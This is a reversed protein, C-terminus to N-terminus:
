SLSSKFAIVPPCSSSSPLTGTKWVSQMDAPNITRYGILMLLGALAPMAVNVVLDAFALIVAAMVVSAILLAQRSRAGAQKNTATASVSGGVPMGQFAGAAVNAAGQGIFDRSADPYRGDPNPFNASIGAGQVLGIFALSLAPVVLAPVLRLLPLEPRPLSRPVDSVDSLTAVGDWGLVAAAASTAIIAVVLGLAGIRARELLFILAITTAGPVVTQVHLEGPNVFTDFARAVRNSGHADYGTFSALQGLVINVGVASLFGVMVANSVFRMVSGLRLIGAGLMVIGTIVALTFLSREPDSSDHIAPVDAVVMSMAGTGQVAMFASSTFLAGTVTGVKYAHLGALPNVGALLGTALGDPVSQLGLVVGAVSDDRLTDRRFLLGLRMGTVDERSWARGLALHAPLEVVGGALVDLDGAHEGFGGSDPSWAAAEGDAVEDGIWVHVVEGAAVDVLPDAADGAGEGLMLVGVEEGGCSGTLDLDDLTVPDVLVGGGDDDAGALGGGRIGMVM